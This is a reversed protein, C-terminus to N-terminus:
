LASAQYRAVYDGLRGVARAIDTAPMFSATLSNRALGVLDDALLGVTHRCQIFKQNVSGGFYAPDDSNLALDTLHSPAGVWLRDRAAYHQVQCAGRLAEPTSWRLAEPTSRPLAIKNRDALALLLEPELGGELHVHLEAKPPARVFLDIPDM